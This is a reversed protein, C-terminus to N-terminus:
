RSTWGHERRANVQPLGSSSGSSQGSMVTTRSGTPCRVRIVKSRRPCASSGPSSTYSPHASASSRSASCAGRTPHSPRAAPPTPRKSSSWSPQSAGGNDREIEEANDAQMRSLGERLGDDGGDFQELLEIWRAAMVQPPQASTPDM